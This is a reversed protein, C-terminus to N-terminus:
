KTRVRIIYEGYKEGNAFVFTDAITHALLNVSM